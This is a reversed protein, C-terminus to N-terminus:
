GNKSDDIKISKKNKRKPKVFDSIMTFNTSIDKLAASMEYNEFEENKKLLIDVLKKMDTDALKARVSVANTLIKYITYLTNMKRDLSLNFYNDIQAQSLVTANVNDVFNVFSPHNINIKM